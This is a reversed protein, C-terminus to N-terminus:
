DLFIGTNKLSVDCFCVINQVHFIVLIHSDHKVEQSSPVYTSPSLPSSDVAMEYSLQYQHSNIHDGFFHKGM